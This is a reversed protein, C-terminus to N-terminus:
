KINLKKLDMKIKKDKEKPPYEGDYRVAVKQHILDSVFQSTGQVIQNVPWAKLKNPHKYSKILRARYAM